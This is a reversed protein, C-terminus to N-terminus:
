DSKQVSLFLRWCLDVVLQAMHISRVTHNSLPAPLESFVSGVHMIFVITASLRQHHWTAQNESFKYLIPVLAASLHVCLWLRAVANINRWPYASFPSSNRSLTTVPFSVHTDCEVGSVFCCDMCQHWLPEGTFLLNLCVIETLFVRHVTRQLRHPTRM